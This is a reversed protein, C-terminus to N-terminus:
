QLFRISRHWKIYPLRSVTDDEQFRVRCFADFIIAKVINMAIMSSFFYFSLFYISYLEVWWESHGDVTPSATAQAQGMARVTAEMIDNWGNGVALTFLVFMSKFPTSFNLDVLDFGLEAGVEILENTSGGFVWCGLIAYVYIFCGLTLALIWILKSCEVISHVLVATTRTARLFRLMRLVRATRGFVLLFRFEIPVGNSATITLLVLENMTLSFDLKNWWDDFYSGAGFATLKVLIEIIFVSVCSIQLYELIGVQQKNQGQRPDLV